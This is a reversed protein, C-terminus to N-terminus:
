DLKNRSSKMLKALVVAHSAYVQDNKDFGFVPNIDLDTIKVFILNVINYPTNLNTLVGTSKLNSAFFTIQDRTLVAM